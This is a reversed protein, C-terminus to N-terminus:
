ASKNHHASESTLELRVERRLFNEEHGRRAIEVLKALQVLFGFGAASRLPPLALMFLSLQQRSLTEVNEEIAPAEDLQIPETGMFTAIEAHILLLKKAIGYHGAKTGDVAPQDVGM